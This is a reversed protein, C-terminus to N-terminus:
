GAVQQPTPPEPPGAPQFKAQAAVAAAQALGQKIQASEALSRLHKEEVGMDRGIDPLTTETRM